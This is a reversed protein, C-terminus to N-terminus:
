WRNKGIEINLVFLSLYRCVVDLIVLSGFCFLGYVRKKKCSFKTTVRGNDQQYLRFVTFLVYFQSGYM